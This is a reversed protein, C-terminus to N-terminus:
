RRYRLAYFDDLWQWDFSLMLQAYDGHVSEYYAKGDNAGNISWEANHGEAVTCWTALRDASTSDTAACLKVSERFATRWAVIPSVTYHAVGSVVDVTEHMKSMTFDLGYDTTSLVLEKNYAVMAQHGYILGNTRNIANFIYHKPEQLYDPQWDWDFGADVELKAPIAFFWPTSSLTAAAYLANARGTVDKVWHIKRGQACSVLHNYWRDADPEGNSIYVIDLCKDAVFQEKHPLIYPYDYMQTDLYAKTERPVVTVSGSETFTHIVRDKKRWIAPAFDPLRAKVSAHKFVAYPGTFTHAKVADVVTDGAYTIVDIPLRPVIQDSCYNVTEFWDLLELKDMQEIFTPVHVYFTDGFKQTGSPFVHLMKAQWPEPQWTFDFRSYDCISNTIWIYETEATGVIRKFTALYNDVYRAQKIDTYRKSIRAFNDESGPNFHDVYYIDYIDDPRYVPQDSVFNLNPFEELTKAWKIHREFENKNILFTDSWKQWQSAFVHTMFNQWPQAHWEFNFNDYVNESSIVWFKQTPSRTLCRKITEVWGNMFRIKQIDPYRLKLTEFRATSTKNNMDVFFMSVVQVISSNTKRTRDVLEKLRAGVRRKLLPVETEFKLETATPVSYTLGTSMQFESSFHYIYPQEKPHPVWSFDIMSANVEEPVHWNVRTTTLTAYVSSDVYKRETAGPVRYEATPMVEAPYWQNGFVYIYPPAFPDVEWNGISTLDVNTYLSKLWGSNIKVHLVKDDCYKRETAGPVHYEATPMEISSYWPNGFVYIYPPEFPNPAWTKDIVWDAEDKLIKWKNFSDKVAVSVIKDDCYKYETATPVRYEVTPMEVASYWPNGFVYIYPPEFPNPMWDTDVTWAVESKLIKWRSHKQVVTLVKDDCYKFETAGPVHYEATPMEVASYWPNGFVYIYPPEFPTPAWTKDIVWDAEHRLLKWNNAQALVTVVQEDCYKFETAGPVHYEATPMEVASYWPNGFVYIYPPEFPTPAWNPDVVWNVEPKLIKWLSPNAKRPLYTRDHFNEVLLVDATPVFTIEFEEFQSRILYVHTQHQEWPPPLQTFDFGTFDYMGNCFWFFKTKSKSKADALSSAHQEHPFLNPKKGFYFLDFM